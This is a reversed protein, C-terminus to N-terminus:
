SAPERSAPAVDTKKSKKRKAREEQIAPQEPKAGADAAKKATKQGYRPPPKVSALLYANYAPDNDVVTEARFAGTGEGDEDEEEWLVEVHEFGAEKLLEILEPMTWLRWDYTFAKKLKTGDKFEFHIYCLYDATIPNYEAQHWVYTFGKQKRPEKIEQGAEWGGFLDLFFIGDDVLHDKVSEFYGRLTARD